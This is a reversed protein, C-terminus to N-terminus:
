PLPLPSWAFRDRCPAWCHTSRTWGTAADLKRRLKTLARLAQRLSVGYTRDAPQELPAHPRWHVVRRLTHDARQGHPRPGPDTDVAPRREARQDASARGALVSDVGYRKLSPSGGWHVRAPEVDLGARRARGRADVYVVKWLRVAAITKCHRTTSKQDAGVSCLSPRNPVVPTVPPAFRPTRRHVEALEVQHAVTRGAGLRVLEVVIRHLLHLRPFGFAAELDGPEGLMAEGVVAHTGRRQHHQSAERALGPPDREAGRDHHRGEIVRHPQMDSIPM